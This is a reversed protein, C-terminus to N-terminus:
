EAHEIAQMLAYTNTREQGLAAPHGGVAIIYDDGHEVTTVHIYVDVTQGDMETSTEFTTVAASEGLVVEDRSDVPEITGLEDYDDGLEDEFEELIEDHSMDVVPNFSQGLVEAKPTSVVAFTAAQETEGQVTLDKEYTNIWNTVIVTREISAASVTEDIVLEETDFYEFETEDLGDDSATAESATFEITEGFVLSTCGATLVLCLVVITAITQRRVDM